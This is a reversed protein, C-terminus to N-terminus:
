ASQTDLLSRIFNFVTEAMNVFLSPVLASDGNSAIYHCDDEWSPFQLASYARKTRAALFHARDGYPAEAALPVEKSFERWGILRSHRFLLPRVHKCVLSIGSPDHSPGSGSAVSVV